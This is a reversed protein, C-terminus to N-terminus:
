TPAQGTAAPPAPAAPKAHAPAAPKPARYLFAGAAIAVTGIVVAVTPSLNAGVGYQELMRAVNGDFDVSACITGAFDVFSRAREEPSPAAGAKTGDGSPPPAIVM